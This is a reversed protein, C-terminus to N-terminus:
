PNERNRSFVLQFAEAFSVGVEAGRRIAMAEMSDVSRADPFPYVETNYMSLVSKKLTMQDTVDNYYNPAFRTGITGFSMDSGQECMFLQDVTSDPRPRCAVMAAEATIRHDRHLDGLNHTYVAHIGCQKVYQSITAVAIHYDLHVDNEMGMIANAGLMGCSEFFANRRGEEVDEAGPRNGRCLSLVWVRHELSLKAITGAPGFAEDDPHAFAFLINV